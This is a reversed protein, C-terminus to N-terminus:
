GSHRAKTFFLAAWLMKTLFNSKPLYQLKLTSSHTRPSIPEDDVKKWTKCPRDSNGNLEKLRNSSQVNNEKHLRQLIGGGLSFVLLLRMEKM